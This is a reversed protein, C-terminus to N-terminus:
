QILRVLADDFVRGYRGTKMAVGLEEMKQLMFMQQTQAKQHLEESEWVRMEVYDVPQQNATPAKGDAAAELGAAVGRREAPKPQQHVDAQQQEASTELGDPSTVRRFMLTYNYGPQRQLVRAAEGWLKEFRRKVTAPASDSQENQQKRLVSDNSQPPSDTPLPLEYFTLHVAACDANRAEKTKRQTAGWLSGGLIGLFFFGLNRHYLSTSRYRDVCARFGQSILIPLDGRGM